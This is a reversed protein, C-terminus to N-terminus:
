AVPETESEIVKGEKRVLDDLAAKKVRWRGGIKFAGPLQGKEALCYATPRPIRIYDAAEVITLLDHPNDTNLKPNPM